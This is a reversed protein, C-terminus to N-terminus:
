PEDASRTQLNIIPVNNKHCRSCTIRTLLWEKILKPFSIQREKIKEDPIEKWDKPFLRQHNM